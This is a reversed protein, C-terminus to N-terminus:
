SSPESPEAAGQVAGEQARLMTRRAMFLVYEALGALEHAAPSGKSELSYETVEDSYTRATISM